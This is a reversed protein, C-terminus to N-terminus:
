NFFKITLMKGVVVKRSAIAIHSRGRATLSSATGSQRKKYLKETVEALMKDIGKKHIIEDARRKIDRCWDERTESSYQPETDISISLTLLFIWLTIDLVTLFLDQKVSFRAHGPHICPIQISCCNDYFVLQPFGVKSWFRDNSSYGFAHQFGSAAVSSAKMSLTLLILPKTISMYNRLFEVAAALDEGEAKLWPCLDVFPFAGVGILSDIDYGPPEGTRHEWGWLRTFCSKLLYASQSPGAYFCEAHQYGQKSIGSGVTLFLTTHGKFKAPVAQKTMTDRLAESFTHQKNRFMSVAVQHDKAYSHIDSAWNFIETKTSASVPHFSAPCLRPLTDTNLAGFMARHADNLVFEYQSSGIAQNLLSPLGFLAILAQERIERFSQAEQWDRLPLSNPHVNKIDSFTYVASCDIVVPHLHGLSTLFKSLFGTTRMLMDERHRRFATKRDTRGIYRLYVIDSSQATETMNAWVASEPYYLGNEHFDAIVDRLQSASLSFSRVYYTTKPCAPTSGDEGLDEHLRFM